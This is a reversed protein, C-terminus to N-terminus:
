QGTTSRSMSEAACTRARDELSRMGTRMMLRHNLMLVPRGLRSLGALGPKAVAAEQDYVLRTAAGDPQVVFQSWGLLDGDLSAKLTGTAADDVLATLKLRLTIPLASRIDVHGSVDDVPRVSRIQPWWQPWSEVDHLQAFVSEAPAALHFTSHFRFIQSM